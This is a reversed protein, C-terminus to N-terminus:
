MEPEIRLEVTESYTGGYTRPHAVWDLTVHMEGKHIVRRDSTFASGGLFELGNRSQFVDRQGLRGSVTVPVETYAGTWGKERAERHVLAGNTLELEGKMPTNCYIEFEVRAQGGSVMDGHIVPVSVAQVECYDSIKGRLDVSLESHAFARPLLATM